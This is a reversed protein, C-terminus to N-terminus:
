SHDPQSQSHRGPPLFLPDNWNNKGEPDRAAAGAELLEKELESVKCNMEYYSGSLRTWSSFLLLSYIILNNLERALNNGTRRMREKKMPGM